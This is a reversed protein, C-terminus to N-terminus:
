RSEGTTRSPSDRRECSPSSSRAEPVREARRIRSATDVHAVAAPAHRRRRGRHPLGRGRRAGRRARADHAAPRARRGARRLRRRAAPRRPPRDARRRLPGAAARRARRGRGADLGAPPRARGGGGRARRALAARGAPGREDARGAGHRRAAGGHPGGRPDVRRAATPHVLREALGLEALLAPVEPRRALFAEAGVDYPRGALDVTRLVGGIRDRQELVRSRPTPASCRACATRPPWGPSARGSSPSGPATMRGVSHVLEVLRTLSTRTPRPCCATASTSCTARRAAARTSSAACRPRSRRGPRRVARGPRPQGAGARGPAAPPRTWRCGGTSASSTPARRAGDRRAARRHRRRLPDAARRRRGRGRARPHLAAPRVPPLGARVARGGLLRLAAGRRGRRRDARAPVDATLDALRGMLAHWVDPAAYM